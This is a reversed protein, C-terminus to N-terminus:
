RRGTQHAVVMPVPFPNLDHDEMLIKEVQYAHDGHTFTKIPIKPSIGLYVPMGSDAVPTECERDTRDAIVYPFYRGLDFKKRM